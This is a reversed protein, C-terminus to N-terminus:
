RVDLKGKAPLTIYFTTGKDLKSTVSIEGGHNEAIIFYSVSMGLGTGNGVTKTTYFPEFVRKTTEENMGPGNDEFEINILEGNDSSHARIIIQPNETGSDQMAQASNRLINLIVQQIKTQECVLQPLNPSLDKTIRIRKFDYKKKMDYDTAALELTKDILEEVIAASKSHDGKRAFALMNSVVEAAHKGSDIITRIMRPIDRANMYKAIAQTTTGAEEAAKKNVPLDLKDILRNNIVNATQMMGALPNNIEHAMGAALGGISLMKENQIMLEEMQVKDTVDDIRIVAGKIDGSILPFITIDEFSKDKKGFLAHEGCLPQKSLYRVQRTDMSENLLYAENRIQPFIDLLRKGHAESNSIGTAKEAASNWQTVILDGDVSILVSPMSDIISSIYSQVKKIQNERDKVQLAMLGFSRALKKFEVYKIQTHLQEGSLAEYEGDGIADAIVILKNLADNIKNGMHVSIIITILTVLITTVIIVSSLKFIPVNLENTSTYLAVKWKTDPLIALNVIYLEGDVYREVVNIQDAYNNLDDKYYPDTERTFVKNKDSHYVFVGTHDTITLLKSDTYYENEHFYNRRPQTWVHNTFSIFGTIVFDGQIKSLSSMPIESSRQIILEGWYPKDTKKANLFYKQGSIDTGIIKKDYPSVAIVKGSRDAVQIRNYYSHGDQVSSIDNQIAALDNATKNSLLRAIVNISNIPRELQREVLSEIHHIQRHDYDLIQKELTASSIAVGILGLAILSVAVVTVFYVTMQRKISIHKFLASMTKDTM